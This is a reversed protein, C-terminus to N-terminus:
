ELRAFHRDVLADLGLATSYMVGPYTNGHLSNINLLQDREEPSSVKVLPGHEADRRDKEWEGSEFFSDRKNIRAVWTADADGKMPHSAIGVFEPEGVVEISRGYEERLEKLADVLFAPMSADQASKKNGAAANIWGNYLRTNKRVGPFASGDLTVFTVAAGMNRAHLAWKDGYQQQAVEQMAANGKYNRTIDEEHAQYYTLSTSVVVESDVVLVGRLSVKRDDFRSTTGDKTIGMKVLEPIVITKVQEYERMEAMESPLREVRWVQSLGGTQFVVEKGKLDEPALDYLAGRVIQGAM